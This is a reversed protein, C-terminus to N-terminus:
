SAYTLMPQGNKTLTSMVGTCGNLHYDLPLQFVYGLSTRSYYMSVCMQTVDGVGRHPTSIIIVLTGYSSINKTQLEALEAGKPRFIRSKLNPQHSFLRPVHLIVMRHRWLTLHSMGSIIDSCPYTCLQDYHHGVYRSPIEVADELFPHSSVHLFPACTM